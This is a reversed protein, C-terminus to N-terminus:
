LNFCFYLYLYFCFKIYFIILLIIFLILFLLKKDFKIRNYIQELRKLSLEIQKNISIHGENGVRLQTGQSKLNNFNSSANSILQNLNRKISIEEKENNSIDFKLEITPTSKFKKIENLQLNLNKIQNKLLIFESSNKLLFDAENVMKKHNNFRREFNNILNINENIEEILNYLEETEKILEKLIKQKM